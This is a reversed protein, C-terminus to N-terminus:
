NSNGKRQYHHANRAFVFAGDELVIQGEDIRTIRGSAVIDDGQAIMSIRDKWSPKFRITVLIPVRDESLDGIHIIVAYTGDESFQYVNDVQGSAKLWQNLYPSLLGQAELDTHSRAITMLQEATKNIFTPSATAMPHSTEQSSEQPFSELPPRIEAEKASTITPAPTSFSAITTYLFFLFFAAMWWQADTAVRIFSASLAPAIRTKLTPWSPGLIAFAIGIGLFVIMRLSIAEGRYLAEGAPLGFMLGILECFGFVAGDNSPASESRQEPMAVGQPRTEKELHPNPMPMESFERLMGFRRKAELSLDAGSPDPGWHSKGHAFATRKDLKYRDGCEPCFGQSVAEDPSIDKGNVLPMPVCPLTSSSWGGSACVTPVLLPCMCPASNSSATSSM